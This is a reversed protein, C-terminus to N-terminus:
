KSNATKSTRNGYSRRLSKKGEDKKAMWDRRDATKGDYEAM